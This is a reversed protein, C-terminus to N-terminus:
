GDHRCTSLLHNTHPCLPPLSHRCRRHHRCGCTHESSCAAPSATCSAPAPHMPSHKLLLAAHCSLWKCRRCRREGMGPIWWSLWWQIFRCPCLGSSVPLWHTARCAALTSLKPPGLGPAAMEAMLESACPTAIFLISRMTITRMLARSSRWLLRSPPAREAQNLTPLM